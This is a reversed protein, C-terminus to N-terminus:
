ELNMTTRYTTLDKHIERKVQKKKERYADKGRKLTRRKKM